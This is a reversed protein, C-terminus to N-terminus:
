LTLEVEVSLNQEQQQMDKLIHDGEDLIEGADEEDTFLLALKAQFDDGELLQIKEYSKEEWNKYKKMTKENIKLLHKM